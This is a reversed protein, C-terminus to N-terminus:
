KQRDLVMSHRAIQNGQYVYKYNMVLGYKESNTDDYNAQLHIEVINGTADVAGVKLDTVNKLTMSTGSFVLNYDRDYMNVTVNVFHRDKPIAEVLIQVIQNSSKNVWFGSASRMPFPGDKGFAAGVGVLVLVMVLPLLIKKLMRKGM